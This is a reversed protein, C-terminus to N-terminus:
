TVPLIRGGTVRVLEEFSTSFVTRPTGAAAWIPDYLELSEDIVTTLPEPHGVPAVGGIAQGTVERLLDASARNIAGVRLRDALARERVRHAGSTMVLLPEGDAMFILSNAIAGIECELAAAAEAATRTSDTLERVETPIGLSALRQQVHVAARPLPSTMEDEKRQQQPLRRALCEDQFTGQDNIHRSPLRSGRSEGRPTPGLPCRFPRPHRRPARSARQRLGSPHIERGISGLRGHRHRGGRRSHLTAGIGRHTDHADSRLRILLSWGGHPPILPYGSLERSILEAREKWVKTAAAVDADGDAARLAATVAEQALGVQCVVNSLGVLHVDHMIRQPGVVWGVRWGIMRLEKSASGVTITRERLGPLAAPHIQPADDFRIREMAADYILWANTRELAAALAQWHAFHLVGGTPMAPSMM